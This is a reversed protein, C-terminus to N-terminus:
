LPIWMHVGVIILFAAFFQKLRKDSIRHSLKAGVPAALSGGVVVGLWAPWYIYGTSWAPLGAAHLGTVAFTVAGFVSVTMAIVISVIIAVHMKISRNTLFPVSFASGAVGLLGSLLGTFTGALLMGFKGPLVKTVTQTKQFLLRYAMVFVFGGFAIRLFHSHIFHALIGGLVVGIVVGPAMQKYIPFFSVKHRLHALLSRLSVIIMTALSTGIAVHMLLNAPIPLFRFIILLGPVVVLGGGAGLLGSLLGSAVGLCIFAFVESLLHLNVIHM